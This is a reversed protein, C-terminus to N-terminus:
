RNRAIEDSMVGAVDASQRPPPAPFSRGEEVIPPEPALLGATKASKKTQYRLADREKKKAKEEKIKVDQDELRKQESERIGRARKADQAASGIWQPDIFAGSPQEMPNTTQFDELGGMRSPYENYPFDYPSGFRTRLDKESESKSLPTAEVSPINEHAWARYPVNIHMEAETLPPREAPPTNPHLRFNAGQDPVQANFASANAMPQNRERDAQTTPDFFQPRNLYVPNNPQATAVHSHMTSVVAGGHSAKRRRRKSKKKEGLHIHVEQHAHLRNENHARRKKDKKAVDTKPM